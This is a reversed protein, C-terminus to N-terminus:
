QSKEQTKASPKTIKILGYYKGGFHGIKSRTWCFDRYKVLLYSEFRLHWLQYRNKLTSNWLEYFFNWPVKEFNWRFKSEFHRFSSIFIERSGSNEPPWSICWFEQFKLFKETTIAGNKHRNIKKIRDAHKWQPIAVDNLEKM